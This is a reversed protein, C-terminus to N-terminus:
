DLRLAEGLTEGRLLRLRRASVHMEQVTESCGNCVPVLNPHQEAWSQYRERNVFVGIAGGCGVACPVVEREIRM